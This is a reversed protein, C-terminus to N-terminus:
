APVSNNLMAFYNSISAENDGYAHYIIGSLESEGILEDRVDNMSYFHFMNDPLVQTVSSGQKVMYYLINMYPDAMISVNRSDLTKVGIVGGRKNRLKLLFLNGSIKKHKIFEKKLSNYAVWDDVGQKTEASNNLFARV